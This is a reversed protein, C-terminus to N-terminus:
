PNSAQDRQPSGGLLLGPNARIQRSFENMNRAAGEMNQSISDIQRSVSEVVYKAETIITKVDSEPSLVLTNFDELVKKLTVLTADFKKTAEDMNGIIQELTERNEPSVLTRIEESTEIMDTTFMEVQDVVEPVRTTLDRVLGAVDKILESADRVFAGGDDGLLQNIEAVALNVNQFLPRAEKDILDTLESALTSVAGFVGTTERSSLQEGPTLSDSGVGAHIALTKASLLSPAAIEVQSDSPIRWGQVVSFDVKFEMRGNNERPTVGEVQGIPYGEYVVQTGFKVGSVNSYIAYYKDVAGTRGTLMAISGILTGIMGFVFLGVIMYNIKSSRM